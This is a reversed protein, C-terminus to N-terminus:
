EGAGKKLLRKVLMPRVQELTEKIWGADNFKLGEEFVKLETPLKKDLDSLENLLDTHFVNDKSLEEFLNLLEGIAGDKKEPIKGYEPLRTEFKIKEVWVRGDCADLATSRIENTWREFDSFIEGHAATEGKIYVRAALPIGDNEELLNELVKRVRDLIDYASEAGTADVEATVWRVVDMSMFEIETEHNQGVSVLICGKPGTERPHRGQLNGPFVIFPHKTIIEHNHVHGLAWYDYGKSSLDQPSCPAYPEHGERGTACTHLLGINYFGKLPMPYGGALDKKVAPSAFSQGHIAVGLNELQYTSPENSPFIKVNDPFRLTKTINSAADHNGTVIFVSIGADRLRFMRSVLYLGTNYDKWDGDYLDGAIVVFAVNESIALQILNEFARRTAKRFKEVPAGEYFDLKRMPSDLHIDAAHIFKFM